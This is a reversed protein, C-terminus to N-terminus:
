LNEREPIPHISSISPTDCAASQDPQLSPVPAVGPKML